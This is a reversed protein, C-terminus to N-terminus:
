NISINKYIKNLLNIKEKNYSRIKKLAEEYTFWRISSIEINQFENESSLKPNNKNSQALYYIHKYNINNSGMFIENLYENSIINFDNENFDTEEMFERVACQKDTEKLNRRGKPFEWEPEIWTNKLDSTINNLNGAIEKDVVIYKIGNKLLNHKNMTKQYEDINRVSDNGWLYIWLDSFNKTKILNIENLTMTEFLNKLQLYHKYSELKYNGRIYDVFGCTHKRRIMLFQVNKNDEVIDFHYKNISNNEYKIIKEDNTKMCIIGLSIIPMLCKKYTHGKRGCNSCCIIKKNNM